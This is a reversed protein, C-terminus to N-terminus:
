AVKNLKKIISFIFLASVLCIGALVGWIVPLSVNEGWLLGPIMVLQNGIATAAFWLGMMLGAYKPPAVKSVFSIGIPSLLLEAFTLVLYTSILLNASVRAPDSGAQIAAAQDMPALLGTSGAIMLCFAAAAVLMGLGIKQPSTPEKGKRNLWSFLAVSVPTLAVVYCPNFQQFIPAKVDVVGDLANYKYCLFAAAAVIILGGIGRGKATKNQYLAFLGYVIFICAVLNTVDFAMSQLGESTTQTYDRAFLTLTNGNQHFAMWFFIVVAFVLCLCVIRETTESRSLEPVATQQKSLKDNKSKEGALVHKYTSSSFYYILISVILSVCAVAFAFHYSDAEGIGLSNQAWEMIKIAATPAFMAGINIAMYFLSFGADRKDAYEPSDYLRGVMVQLNGKFLGTGLSILVLAAAMAAAAPFNGGLPVSLLLYGLFMIFIGTTVMKGFGFRDAAIGGIVPLFYVLMLFTSYITSALGAEYGFNAQLYLLFVALMTYYGFREGTNALALAWLGKPQGEFM